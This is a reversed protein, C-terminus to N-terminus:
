RRMRRKKRKKAQYPEPRGSASPSFAQARSFSPSSWSDASRTQASSFFSSDAGSGDRASNHIRCAPTSVCTSGSLSFHPM